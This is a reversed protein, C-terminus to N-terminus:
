CSFHNSRQRWFYSDTWKWYLFKRWFWIFFRKVSGMQECFVLEVGIQNRFM